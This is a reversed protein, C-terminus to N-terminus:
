KRAVRQPPEKDARIIHDNAGAGAINLGNKREGKTQRRKRM